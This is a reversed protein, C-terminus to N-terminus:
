VQEMKWQRLKSDVVKICTLCGSILTSPKFTNEKPFACGKKIIGSISGLVATTIMIPHADSDCCIFDIYERLPKPLDITSFNACPEAKELLTFSLKKLETQLNMGSFENINLQNKVADIGSLIRLDNFDTPLEGDSLVLGEPFEPFLISCQYKEAAKDAYMRGPNEPNEKDNDAAIIISLKPYKAKLNGIVPDINGCDFAVVVPLGKAEYLSYATAYGEACFLKGDEKIEGLVHFNGRKVGHIRKEGNAKIHQIAQIEGDVNRLPIVIVHNKSEEFDTSYKVGVARVQKRDLYATHDNHFPNQQSNEWNKKARQIRKEFDKKQQEAYKQKRQKENVKFKQYDEKSLHPDNEFSMFTYEKKGGEWTGYYCSLYPRGKFEWKSCAYFEDKQNKKSDASFRYYKGPETEQLPGSFHIGNSAMHALCANELDAYSSINQPKSLSQTFNIEM